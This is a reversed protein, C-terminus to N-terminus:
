EIDLRKHAAANSALLQGVRDPATMTQLRAASMKGLACTLSFSSWSGESILFDRQSEGVDFHVCLCLLTM